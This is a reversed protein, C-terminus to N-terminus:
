APRNSGSIMRFEFLRCDLAGNRLPTRRSPSLRIMKALRLDATLLYATWGAMERKLWHGLQPYLLALRDMEDLRVGYPPNSVIVGGAAPAHSDLFDGDSLTICDDLQIHALNQRAAALAAPDRDIGFLPLPRAQKERAIAADTIQQWAAPRFGSLKEFAFHRCAGPAWDLAIMAAEVLFTGSGCMPDLLPVDPTWGTLRLIGAALNERLPADGTAIRWGRKFLPEGSTDLYLAADSGSLFVHIRMDPTHTDVSPREGGRERFVDCVADKITLSVFDISKVPSKVADTKVKITRSVDFYQPWDVQRALQYLDREDRYRGGGVRWLVRSAIRSHLNVTMMTDFSGGFGVGGDTPAVDQAGLAVLEDSLVAELGRPCPAFFRDLHM